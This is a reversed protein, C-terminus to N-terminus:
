SRCVVLHYPITAQEQNDISQKVHLAEIYKSARKGLVGTINSAFNANGTTPPCPEAAILVAYALAVM